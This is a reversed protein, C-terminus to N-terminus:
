VKRLFVPIFERQAKQGMKKKILLFTVATCVLIGLAVVLENEIRHSLLLASTLITMLPVGYLWFVSYLVSKEALGIEIRDGENLPQDVALEFQPARKEGALASLSKVGCGDQASCGGCGSKAYCQVTAIGNHYRLVTAQEIMM